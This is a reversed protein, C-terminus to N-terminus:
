RRAGFKTKASVETFDRARFYNLLERPKDTMIEDVGYDIMKLWDEGENVTWTAVIFGERHLEEVWDQDLLCYDPSIIQVGIERAHKMPDAVLEEDDSIALGLTAKPDLHHVVQLVEPDFSSYYVKETLGYSVVMDILSSVVTEVDCTYEHHLPDRKIELNARIEWEQLKECLEAFRTVELEDAKCDKIFRGDVEFDHVIVIEGDLTMQLDLEIGEAGADYAEFFGAITNEPHTAKSGRHGQIKPTANM